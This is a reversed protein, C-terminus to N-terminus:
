SLSLLALLLLLLSAVLASSGSRVHSNCPNSGNQLLVEIILYTEKREKQRVQCTSGCFFTGSVFPCEYDAAPCQM